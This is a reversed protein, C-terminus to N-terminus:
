CLACRKSSNLLANGHRKRIWGNVIDLSSKKGQPQVKLEMVIHRVTWGEAHFVPSTGRESRGTTCTLNCARSCTLRNARNVGPALRFFRHCFACEQFPWGGHLAAAFQCVLAGLLSSPGFAFQPRSDKESWIMRPAIPRYVQLEGLWYDIAYCLFWRAPGVLDGSRFLPSDQKNKLRERRVGRHRWQETATTGIKPFRFTIEDSKWSVFRDLQPREKICEGHVETLHQLWLHHREWEELPEGRESGLSFSHYTGLRGYINAFDLFADKTGDLHAFTLFLGTEELLPEYAPLSEQLPGVLLWRGHPDQRWQFGPGKVRRRWSFELGEAPLAHEYNAM